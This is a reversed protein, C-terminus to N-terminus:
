SKKKKSVKAESVVEEAVTEQNNSVVPTLVELNDEVVPPQLVVEEAITVPAPELEEQDPATELPQSVLGKALAIRLLKKRKRKNM